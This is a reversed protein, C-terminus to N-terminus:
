LASNEKNEPKVIENYENESKHMRKVTQLVRRMPWRLKAMMELKDKKM